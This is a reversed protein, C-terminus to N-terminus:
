SLEAVQYGRTWRYVSNVIRLPFKRSCYIVLWSVSIQDMLQHHYIFRSDGFDHFIKVRFTLISLLSSFFRNIDNTLPPYKGLLYLEVVVCGQPARELMMSHGYSYVYVAMRLITTRPCLFGIQADYLLGCAALAGSSSSSSSYLWKIFLSM